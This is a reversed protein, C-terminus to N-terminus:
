FDGAISRELYWTTYQFCDRTRSQIHSPLIQIIPQWTNFFAQVKSEKHLSANVWDMRLLFTLKELFLCLTPREPDLWTQLITKRAAASICYLLKKQLPSVRVDEWSVHGFLAWASTLELTLSLNTNTFRLIRQWFAQILRCSWLCHHLGATSKGCRSCSADPLNGMLFNRHSSIYGRRAIKLFMEWYSIALIYKLATPLYQLILDPTLEQDQTSWRSIGVTM